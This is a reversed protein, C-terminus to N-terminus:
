RVASFMTAIGKDIKELAEQTRVDLYHHFTLTKVSDMGDYLGTAHGEAELHVKFEKKSFPKRGNELCYAKYHNFAEKVTLPQTAKSAREPRRAIAVSGYGFLDVETGMDSLWQLVTNASNKWDALMLSHQQSSALTGSSLYRKTAELAANLIGALEQEVIKKDLDPVREAEPKANMFHIIRWRRWFADSRDRTTLFFNGNFWNAAMPRMTFVKGFTERASVVDGSIISKFDASPLPKDKDIEPVLNFRKGALAARNYEHGFDEPKVACRSDSPIMAEIIKLITSKGSGGAGYLFVAVQMSPMLGLISCGMLQLLLERQEAYTTGFADKILGDFLPTDMHKPEIALRFTCRHDKSTPVAMLQGDDVCIFGNATNVGAPANLFFDPEHNSSYSVNAIAKYDSERACRAEKNFMKAISLSVQNLDKDVWIGKDESYSWLKGYEAVLGTKKHPKSWEFAMELHTKPDEDESKQSQKISDKIEGLGVGTLSKLKKLAKSKAMSNNIGAIYQTAADFASEHELESNSEDALFEFCSELTPFKEKLEEAERQASIKGLNAGYSEAIKCVTNFTIPNGTAHTYTAAKRAVDDAGTYKSGEASWEDLMAISEATNGFKFLVGAFVASWDRYSCDADIYSLIKKAENLEPTNGDWTQLSSLDFEPKKVRLADVVISPVVALEDVRPLEEDILTKREKIHMLQNKTKIDVGHLWGDFSAKIDDLELDDPLKFLFHLSDGAENEQVMHKQLDVGLINQLEPLPIAGDPKNGDYDILVARDMAVGVMTRNSNRWKTDTVGYSQGNAYPATATTFIPIARYGQEIVMEIKGHQWDITSNQLNSNSM